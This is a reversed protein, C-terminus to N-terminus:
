PYTAPELPVRLDVRGRDPARDTFRPIHRANWSLGRGLAPLGDPDMCTWYATCDTTAHNISPSQCVERLLWSWNPRQQRDFLALSLGDSMWVMRKPYASRVQVVTAVINRDSSLRNPGPSALVAMPGAWGVRGALALYAHKRGSLM